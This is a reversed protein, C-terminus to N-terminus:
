ATGRPRRFLDRSAFISPGFALSTKRLEDVIIEVVVKSSLEEM